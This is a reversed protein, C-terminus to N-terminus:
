LSQDSLFIKKTPNGGDTCYKKTVYCAIKSHGTVKLQTQTFRRVLVILVKLKGFSRLLNAVNCCNSQCPFNVGLFTNNKGKMRKSHLTINM